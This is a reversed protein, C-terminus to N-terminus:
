QVAVQMGNAPLAAILARTYASKPDALVEQARGSEMVTGGKLVVIDDCKSAMSIDHTIMLIAADPFISRMLGLFDEAFDDDLGNAPEDAIILKARSCAALAVCVRQCMGGSLEFPYKGVIEEPHEFGAASLKELVTKLLDARPTGLKKLSDYMQKKVTRSPDLSEAGSQPIYVIETGLLARMEEKEPLPRGFYLITEGSQRVGAPLLGMVSLATMTKGSGTEGILALSKGFSLSFSVGGTIVQAGAGHGATIQGGKYDLILGEM